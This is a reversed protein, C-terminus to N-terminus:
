SERFARRFSDTLPQILYDLVTREGTEIFAEAPMGPALRIGELKAIQEGDVEIRAVFYSRGTREDRLADASVQRVTGDLRPTTRSKYASLAVNAKLGARVVDIDTPDVRAEVILRDEDPVLDLIAGGPPVVGGITHYRLNLVIGAQPAVVDRRTLKVRAEALREEVEARQAQVDRLEVAATEIRALRVNLIELETEAIAEEVEAVRNAHDGLQGRLYAAQRELALLRPRRELGREVMARVGEMEDQVLALQETASGRQAQLALIQANRQAIRRNLVAIRGELAERGAVFIRQQGDLVEAVGAQGRLAALEDPFVLTERDEREALLRAEQAALAALRGDLLDHLARAEVDDLRLLVQGARVRVGDRVLLEVISGGERHQVIKRNTEAVVVGPAVAASALPAHAAWTAFGGVGIGLVLAGALLTGGVPPREPVGPLRDAAGDHRPAPPASCPALTM